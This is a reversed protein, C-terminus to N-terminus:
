PYRLFFEDDCPTIKIGRAELSIGAHGFNLIDQEDNDILPAAVCNGKQLMGADLCRVQVRQAAFPDGEAIVISLARGTCRRPCRQKGTLVHHRMPDHLIADGQVSPVVAQPVPRGSGTRSAKACRSKCFLTDGRLM